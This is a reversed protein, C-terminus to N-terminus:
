ARVANRVLRHTVDTLRLDKLPRTIVEDFGQSLAHSVGKSTPNASVLVAPGLWGTERMIKLLQLGGIDPLSEDVILAAAGQTQPDNLLATGTAYTRVEYGLSILLLHIARRSQPDGEAVLIKNRQTIPAERRGQKM